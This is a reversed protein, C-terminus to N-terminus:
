AAVRFREELLRLLAYTDLPKVFYEDIGVAHAKRKSDADGYGSVAVILVAATAKALRLRAAVQFGDMGPLGIDLLVVQPRFESALAVAEPGSRAVQVKYGVGRLLLALTDAADVNDEAILVRLPETQAPDPRAAPPVTRAPAARALPLHVMFQAGRGPGDSHARVQGGHMEVLSRALALGIGLGGQQRDPTREDQTFLDFVHPLLAPAIGSGHDTVRVTAEHDDHALALEIRDAHNGFKCANSLLNIFVQELRLADGHVWVPAQPLELAILQERLAAQQQMTDAAQALIERLDVNSRELKVKGHTIRAMDLLDDVLRAMKHTQRRLVTAVHQLQPQGQALSGLVEAANRIPTLPNRLEHALMSLFETKRRDQVQLQTLARQTTEYLQANDLALAGRRALETAIPLDREGYHRGAHDDGDALALALVGFAQERAALPLLMASRLGLQRSLGLRQPAAPDPVAGHDPPTDIRSLLVSEGRLARGLPTDAGMRPFQVAALAQAQAERAPDRHCVVLVPPQGARPLWVAAFDALRPVVAAVLTRAASLADLPHGLLRGADALAALVAESHRRESIDMASGIVRTLRGDADAILWSRDLVWVWYGDRHCIRFECEYRSRGARVADHLATFVRQEDDRHIRARWWAAYPPVEDPAFGLLGKLGDSRVVRDSGTDWDYVMGQLAEAAVRFREESAAIAAEARKRGTIDVANGVARWIRGDADREVYARDWVDIWEGNRHQIRYEAEFLADNGQLLGNFAALAHARDDPHTRERWWQDTAPVEDPDFGLLAHLGESRWMRGTNLNWEYVLGQAARAALRFRQERDALEKRAQRDATIDEAIGAVYLLTGDDDHVPFGRDRVWRESGDPRLVRYEQDYAGVAVDRFFAAEVRPRDAPHLGNLWEDNNYYLQDRPRGWIQDYSPSAYLFRDHVIDNMWLVADLREAFQRFRRESERLAAETARQQTVEICVINVGAVQGDENRVPWWNEIWTRHVGPQAATEGVVEIDLRPRGTELVDRLPQEIAGALAPLVERVSRGIHDAAPMGNIAAQRENIRVFRLERDIVCLGAPANAYIFELEQLRRRAQAESAGLADTRETVRQELLAIANRLETLARKQERFLVAVLLTTLGFIVLQTQMMLNRLLPDAIDPFPGHGRVSFGMSLATLAAVATAAGFVGFRIAAWLLLPLLLYPRLMGAGAYFVLWSGLAMLLLWVVAELSLGAVLPRPPRQPPTALLVPAVLLVGLAEALVGGRWTTALPAAVLTTLLATEASASVLPLLGIGGLALALMSRLDDLRFPARLSANIATTAVVAGLADASFTALTSVLAGGGRSSDLVGLAAAGLGSGALVALWRTRPTLLLAALLVGAGPCIVQQLSSGDAVARGVLGAVLYAAALGAILPLSPAALGREFWHRM